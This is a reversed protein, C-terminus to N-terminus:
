FLRKLAGCCRVLIRVKRFGICEQAWARVASPSGFTAVASQEMLAKTVLYTPCIRSQVRPESNCHEDELVDFELADLVAEFSQGVVCWSSASM